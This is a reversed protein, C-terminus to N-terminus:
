KVRPAAFPLYKIERRGSLLVRQLTYILLGRDWPNLPLDGINASRWYRVGEM